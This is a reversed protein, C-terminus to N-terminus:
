EAAIAIFRLDVDKVMEPRIRQAPIKLWGAEYDPLCQHNITTLDDALNINFSDGNGVAINIADILDDLVSATIFAIQVGFAQGTSQALIQTYPTGDAAFETNGAVTQRFNGADVLLAKCADGSGNGLTVGAISGEAWISM